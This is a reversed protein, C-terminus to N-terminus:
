GVGHQEFWDLARQWGDTAAQEHYSQRYDAHFGHGAQDYIIISSPQDAQKLAEAMAEADEAPIGRDQGGYLGLVPANLKTAVDIPWPRESADFSRAAEPARLRGYWAVGADVRPDQAAFMWVVSGGWCFGTIGLAETKAASRGELWDVLRTLDGMVQDHTATRVIERIKSFDSLGSPDGARAYLDPVIAYYGQQAFRRAVDRIYEHVGFIEHVVVIVPFPGEGQPRVIYAPLETGAAPFMATETVLGEASTSIASAAVPRVYAAFGVAGILGALARRTLKAPGDAALGEPGDLLM